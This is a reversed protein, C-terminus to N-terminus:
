HPGGFAEVLLVAVIALALVLLGIALMTPRVPASPVDSADDEDQVM